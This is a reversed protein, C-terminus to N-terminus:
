NMPILELVLAYHDSCEDGVPDKRISRSVVKLPLFMRTGKEEKRSAGIQEISKSGPTFSQIGFIYDIRGCDDNYEVLSNQLAYTHQDVDDPKEDEISFYDIWDCSGNDMSARDSASPMLIENYEISGAKVNFDGVVLVGTQSWDFEHRHRADSEERFTSAKSDIAENEIAEITEEIFALIEGVQQKRNASHWPDLHTNFVLLKRKQIMNENEDDNDYDNNQSSHWQPVDWLTCEVGKNSKSRSVTFTHKRRYICAMSPNSFDYLGGTKQWHFYLTDIMEQITRLFSLKKKTERAPVMEGRTRDMKPAKLHETCCSTSFTPTMWSSRRPPVCHSINDVLERM